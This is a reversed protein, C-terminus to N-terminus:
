KRYTQDGLDAMREEDAELLISGRKVYSVAPNGQKNWDLYADTFEAKNGKPKLEYRHIGGSRTVCFFVASTKGGKGAKLLDKEVTRGNQMDCDNEM